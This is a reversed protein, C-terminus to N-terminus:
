IHSVVEEYFTFTNTYKGRINPLGEEYIVKCGIGDSNGIYSSFKTEKKILASVFVYIYVLVCYVLLSFM